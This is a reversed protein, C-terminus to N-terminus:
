RTGLHQRACELVRDLTTAPTAEHHRDPRDYFGRQFFRRWHAFLEDREWLTDFRVDCHYSRLLKSRTVAADIGDFPWTGRPPALGNLRLLSYLTALATRHNADPFFHLGVLARTWHECQVAVPEIRPFERVVRGVRYRTVNRIERDTRDADGRVQGYPYRQSEFFFRNTARVYAADVGSCDTIRRDSPPTSSSLDVYGCDPVDGGSVDLGPAAAFREAGRRELLGVRDLYRCQLRIVNERFRGRAIARPTTPGHEAVYDVVAADDLTASREHGRWPRPDDGSM